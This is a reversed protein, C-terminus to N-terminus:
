IGKAFYQTLVDKFHNNANHYFVNLFM